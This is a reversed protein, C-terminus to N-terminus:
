AGAPTGAPIAISTPGADSQGAALAGISRSGVLVDSADLSLNTSLYFRTTAAAAAVGGGQNLVTTNMTGTTGAVVSSPVTAASIILDPGVRVLVGPSANNTESTEVVANNGDAVAMVYYNGTALSAPLTVPTSATSVAGAALAPVDRTGLLIASSTFWNSTSIYIATASAGAAGGGANKATGSVSVTGGTGATGPATTGTQTLDPGIRIALGSRTNNTELGEAVSHGDDANAIIYYSGTATTSPITLSTSAPV